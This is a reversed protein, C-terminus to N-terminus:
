IKIEPVRLIRKHGNPRRVLWGDRVLNVVHKNIRALPIGTRKSLGIETDCEDRNIIDIIQDLILPDIKADHNEQTIDKASIRAFDKALYKRWDDSEVTM